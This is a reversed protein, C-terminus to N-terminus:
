FCRSRREDEHAAVNKLFMGRFNVELQTFATFTFKLQLTFLPNPNVIFILNLDLLSNFIIFNIILSKPQLKYLLKRITKVL